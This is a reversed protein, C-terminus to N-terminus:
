TNNRIQVGKVSVKDAKTLPLRITQGEKALSIEEFKSGVYSHVQAEIESLTEDDNDPDHHTLSLRKVKEQAAIDIVDEWASHGWGIKAKYEERSFQADHILLDAGHIFARLQEDFKNSVERGDQMLENDPAFIISKDGVSIKYIATPVTHTAWMYDVTFGEFLKKGPQFSECDLDAELMDMSVPFFTKSMHGQLIESCGIGGQPPMYIRFWSQADYFPKFFPFGQLHDWHPHTIFIRGRLHEESNILANGLNRFGTGCDFILLEDLGSVEIQVCTTNGGYHMNESNACPTSGRVGWFTINISNSM